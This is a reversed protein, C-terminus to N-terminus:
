NRLWPRYRDARRAADRRAQEISIVEALEERERYGAHCGCDGSKACVGFPTWCCGKRCKTKRGLSM